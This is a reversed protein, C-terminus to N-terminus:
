EHGWRLNCRQKILLGTAKISVVKATSFPLFPNLLVPHVRTDGHQRASGGVACESLGQAAATTDVSCSAIWFLPLPHGSPQYEEPL